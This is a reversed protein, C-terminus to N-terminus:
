KNSFNFFKENEYVIDNNGGTMYVKTLKIGKLLSETIVTEIYKKVSKVNVGRSSTGNSFELTIFYGGPIYTLPNIEFEETKKM